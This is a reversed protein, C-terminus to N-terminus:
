MAANTAFTRLKSYHRQKSIVNNRFIEPFRHCRRNQSSQLHRFHHRFNKLDGLKPVKGAKIM